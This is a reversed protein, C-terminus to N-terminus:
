LHLVEDILGMANIDSARVSREPHAAVDRIHNMKDAFERGAHASAFIVNGRSSFLTKDFQYLERARRSIHFEFMKSRAGYEDM